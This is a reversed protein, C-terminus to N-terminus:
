IMKDPAQQCKGKSEMRLAVFFEIKMKPHAFREAPHSPFYNETLIRYVKQEGVPSLVEKVLVFISLESLKVGDLFLIYDVLEESLYQAKQHQALHVRPKVKGLDNLFAPNKLPTYLQKQNAQAELSSFKQIEKRPLVNGKDM